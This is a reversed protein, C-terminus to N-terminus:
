EIKGPESIPQEPGPFQRKSSQVQWETQISRAMFDILFLFDIGNRDKREALIIGIATLVNRKRYAGAKGDTLDAALGAFRCQRKNNGGLEGAQLYSTEPGPRLPNEVDEKGCHPCASQQNLM